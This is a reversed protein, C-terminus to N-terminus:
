GIDGAPSGVAPPPTSGQSTAPTPTATSGLSTLLAQIDDSVQGTSAVHDSLAKALARSTERVQLRTVNTRVGLEQGFYNLQEKFHAAVSSGPGKTVVVQAPQPLTDLQEAIAKSSALMQDPDVKVETGEAM